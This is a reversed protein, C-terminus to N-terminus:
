EFSHRTAALGAITASVHRSTFRLWRDRRCSEWLHVYKIGQWGHSVIGLASSGLDVVQTGDHHEFRDDLVYRAQHPKL